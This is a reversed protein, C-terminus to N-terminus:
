TAVFVLFLVVYHNKARIVFCVSRVSFLLGGRRVVQASDRRRYRVFVRFVQVFQYCRAVWGAGRGRQRAEWKM